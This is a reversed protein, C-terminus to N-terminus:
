KEGYSDRVLNLGTFAQTPTSYHCLDAIMYIGSDKTSGTVTPKQSTEPFKCFILDGASLSLDADIVINLSMSFKQRYNQLSQRSTSVVDFKTNNGETGIGAIGGGPIIKQGVDKTKHLDLTAKGDSDPNLVPTYIGATISSNDYDTKTKELRQFVATENLPNFLDLEVNYAGDEFQKLTDNIRSFSSKLIKGNYGPLVNQNAFGTEVFKKITKGTQDFMKDLSRFNYGKSTEWFLFGASKIGVPVSVKQIDLCMEFPYRKNGNFQIDNQTTDAFLDKETKLLKLAERIIVDGKGLYSDVMRNELLLNNYAEKSVVRIVVTSQRNNTVAFSTKGIKLDTDESLDIKNGYQDELIMKFKEDAQLKISELLGITGRSGDKAQIATGADIISLDITIYPSLVSERYELVPVGGRIDVSDDNENSFVELKKYIIPKNGQM